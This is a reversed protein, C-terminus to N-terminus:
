QMGKSTAPLYCHPCPRVGPSRGRGREQAPYRVMACGRLSCLGLSVSPGLHVSFDVSLFARRRQAKRDEQRSLARKTLGDEHLGYGM